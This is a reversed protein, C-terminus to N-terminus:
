ISGCYCSGYRFSLLLITAGFMQEGHHKIAYTRVKEGNIKKELM